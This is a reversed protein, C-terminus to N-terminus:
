FVKLAFADNASFAEAIAMRGRYGQGDCGACGVADFAQDM